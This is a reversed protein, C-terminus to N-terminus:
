SLLHRLWRRFRLSPLDSPVHAEVRGDMPVTRPRQGEVMAQDQAMVFETHALHFEDLWAGVLDFDRWLLGFIDTTHDDVPTFCLVTALTQGDDVPTRIVWLHPYVLEIETRRGEQPPWPALPHRPMFPSPRLVLRRGDDHWELATVTPDVDGTTEPHVFPLHSIDIVSEVVRTWHARWRVHFHVRQCAACSMLEPLQEPGSGEGPAVATGAEPPLYVWVWGAVERAPYVQLRARPPIVGDPHAPIHVCRGADDYTWGHYGCVMLGREIRGQALDAGRHPCYRDVARVEGSAGRYLVMPRACVEAPVPHVGVDESKAVVYWIGAIWM